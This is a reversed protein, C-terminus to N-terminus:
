PLNRSVLAAILQMGVRACICASVTSAGFLNVLDRLQVDAHRVRVAVAAVDQGAVAGIPAPLQDWHPGTAEERVICTPSMHGTM